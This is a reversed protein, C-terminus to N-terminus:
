AATHEPGVISAYVDSLQRAVVTADYLRRVRDAAEGARERWAGRDLLMTDIAHGLAGADGVPVILGGGTTSIVSDNSVIVPTGCLLSELPVLGFIEDESAYVVVDADALAELRDRGILLGTFAVRGDLNLSRALARLRPGDGMDNGAIVVRATPDALHPVVRLLVDVRKRPTLKGLFLVLPTSSPLDVRARFRGPELPTSFEDLDIPNPVLDVRSPRTDLTAFQRREAESVAIATAAGRMVRDGALADFIRKAIRRRELRPATGNPQIVYPVGARRLHSAAIAGPLNRCAHLHAVDFARAHERLYAGLGIPLYSQDYYALRNSLNPFVRVDVGDPTCSPPWPRFRNQPHPPTLRTTADRADTTCLTVHHGQRALERTQASVLRPIGGYAWADPAYPTVHLIRFPV